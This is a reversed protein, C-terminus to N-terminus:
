ANVALTLAASYGDTVSGTIVPTELDAGDSFVLDRALSTRAMNPVSAEYGKTAYVADSVSKTLALQSTAIANAGTTAKALSPYVEFHIHPWRGSYAAPYITQFELTGAADVVQVGRCYTESVTASSYMSYNGERDCHWVYVAAGSLAKGTAGLVTLRVTLAIGAAVNKSSLSPRIDRRVIGGLLLANAGNTGDGPFPGGTEQPIVSVNAASTLAKTTVTAAAKKKTTVKKKTAAEAFDAASSLGTSVVGGVVFLGGLRLIHRRSVSVDNPESPDLETIVVDKRHCVFNKAAQMSDHHRVCTLTRYAVDTTWPVTHVCVTLTSLDDSAVGVSRDIQGPRWAPYWM